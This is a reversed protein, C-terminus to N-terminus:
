SRRGTKEGKAEILKLLMRTCEELAVSQALVLILATFAYTERATLFLHYLWTGLFHLVAGFYAAVLVAYVLTEILFGRLEARPEGSIKM